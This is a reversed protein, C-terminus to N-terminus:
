TTAPALTSRATPETTKKPSCMTPVAGGYIFDVGAAGRLLSDNGLGGRLTDAGGRGNIKDNGGYGCITDAGNTGALTNALLNDGNITTTALLLGTRRM